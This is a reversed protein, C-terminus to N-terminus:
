RSVASNAQDPEAGAPAVMLEVHGSWLAERSIEARLKKAVKEEVRMYALSGPYDERTLYWLTHEAQQGRFIEGM